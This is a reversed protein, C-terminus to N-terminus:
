LKNLLSVFSGFLYLAFCVVIIEFLKILFIIKNLNFIQIGPLM